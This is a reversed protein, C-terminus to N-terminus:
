HHIVNLVDIDWGFFRFYALEQPWYILISVHPALASM